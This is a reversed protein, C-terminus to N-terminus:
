MLSCNCPQFEPLSRSPTHLGHAAAHSLRYKSRNSNGAEEEAMAQAHASFPLRLAFRSVETVGPVKGMFYVSEFRPRRYRKTDRPPVSPGNSPQPRMLFAEHSGAIWASCARCRPRSRCTSFSLQCVCVTVCREARQESRQRGAGLYRAWRSNSRVCLVLEDLLKLIRSM